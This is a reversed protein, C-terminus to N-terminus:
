FLGYTSELQGSIPRYLLFDDDHLLVYLVSSLAMSNALSMSNDAIDSQDVAM